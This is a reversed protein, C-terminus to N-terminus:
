QMFTNPLEPKVQYSAVFSLLMRSELHFRETQTRAPCSRCCGFHRLAVVAQLAFYGQVALLVDQLLLVHVANAAILCMEGVRTLDALQEDAAGALYLPELGSVPNSPVAQPYLRTMRYRHSQLIHGVFLAVPVAFAEQADFAAARQHLPRKGGLFVHQHADLAVAVLVRGLAM